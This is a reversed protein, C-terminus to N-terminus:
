FRILVTIKNDIEFTKIVKAQYPWKFYRFEGRHIAIRALQLMARRSYQKITGAFRM